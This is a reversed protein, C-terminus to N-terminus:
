RVARRERHVELALENSWTLLDALAKDSRAKRREVAAPKVAGEAAIRRRLEVPLDTGCEPCRGSVNMSLDYGCTKCRPADLKRLESLRQLLAECRGRLGPELKRVREEVEGPQCRLAEALRRRVEVDVRSRAAALSLSQGYLFGLTEIQESSSRQRAAVGAEPPRFGMFSWGYLIGLFAIQALVPVLGAQWLFGIITAEHGVGHSWEDLIVPGKGITELLFDLNGEEGLTGNLAPTPAGVVILRGKGVPLEGAVVTNEGGRGMRALPKWGREQQDAFIMPSWLMLRREPRSILSALAVGAEIKEPTEGRAERDQVADADHYAPRTTPAVKLRRMLETESRTLQVVTNGASMWEELQRTQPHYQQRGRMREEVPLVQILVGHDERELSPGELTRVPVGREALLDRLAATGYPDYRRVSYLPADSGSRASFGASRYTVIIGALIAVVAAVM